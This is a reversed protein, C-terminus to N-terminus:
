ANRDKAELTDTRPLATRPRSGQTRSEVETLRHLFLAQCRLGSRIIDYCIGTCALFSFNLVKCVTEGPLPIM